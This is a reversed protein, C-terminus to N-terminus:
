EEKLAFDAGSGDLRVRFRCTDARAYRRAFELPAGKENRVVRETYLIPGGAPVGLAQAVWPETAAVELSEEGSHLRLRYVETLLHYLSGTLDHELLKPTAAYVLHSREVMLPEGDALRVRTVTAVVDGPLLELAAAVREDPEELAADLLRSSPTLGARRMNDSFGSLASLPQEVKPSAVFTGRGHRKVVWGERELEDIAQRVTARSVSLEQSLSRESPLASEAPWVQRRIRDVIWRKLQEYLPTDADAHLQPLDIM